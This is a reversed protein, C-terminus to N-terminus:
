APERCARGIEVISRGGAQAVHDVEIVLPECNAERVLLFGIEYVEQVCESRFRVVCVTGNVGAFFHGPLHGAM